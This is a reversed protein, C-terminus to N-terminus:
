ICSRHKINFPARSKWLLMGIGQQLGQMSFIMMSREFMLKWTKSGNTYCMKEKGKQKPKNTEQDDRINSTQTGSGGKQSGREESKEEKERFCSFAGPFLVFCRWLTYPSCVALQSRQHFSSMASPWIIVKPGTSSTNAYQPQILAGPASPQWAPASHHCVRTMQGCGAENSHHCYAAIFTAASPRVADKMTATAPLMKAVAHELQQRGGTDSCCWIGLSLFETCTKPYVPFDSRASDGAEAVEQM